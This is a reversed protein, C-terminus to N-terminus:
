IEADSTGLTKGTVWCIVWLVGAVRFKQWNSSKAIPSFDRAITLSAIKSIAYRVM